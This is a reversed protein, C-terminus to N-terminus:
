SDDRPVCCAQPLGPGLGSSIVRSEEGENEIGAHPYFSWSCARTRGAVRWPAAWHSEQAFMRGAFRKRGIAPRAIRRAIRRM